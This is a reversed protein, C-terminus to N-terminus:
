VYPQDDIARILGKITRYLVWIALGFLIPIGIVIFCLPIAVIAVVLAIWFTEILNNFHSEWITGRAEKRQIYALVLGAITALHCTPWGVLYLVYGIIASGRRSEGPRPSAQVDIQTM